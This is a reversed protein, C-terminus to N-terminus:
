VQSKQKVTDRAGWQLKPLGAMVIARQSPYLDRRDMNASLM